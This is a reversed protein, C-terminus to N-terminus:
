RTSSTFCLCNVCYEDTGVREEPAKITKFVVFCDLCIVDWTRGEAFAAAVEEVYAEMKAVRAKTLSAVSEPKDARNM